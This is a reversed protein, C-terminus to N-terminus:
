TPLPLSRLSGQSVGRVGRLPPFSVEKSDLLPLNPRKKKKKLGKKERFIPYLYGGKKGFFPSKEREEVPSIILSIGGGWREGRRGILSPTTSEKGV